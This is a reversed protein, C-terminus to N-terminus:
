GTFENELKESEIVSQMKLSSMSDAMIVFYHKSSKNTEIYFNPKIPKPDKLYNYVFSSVFTGAAIFGLSGM